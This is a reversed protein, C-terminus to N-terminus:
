DALNPRKTTDPFFPLFFFTPFLNFFLFVILLFPGISRAFKKPVHDLKRRAFALPPSAVFPFVFSLFDPIHFYSHFLPFPPHKAQIVRHSCSLFISCVSHM